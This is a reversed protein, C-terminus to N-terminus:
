YEDNNILRTKSLDVTKIEIRSVKYSAFDDKSKIMKEADEDDQASVYGYRTRINKDDDEYRFQYQYITM